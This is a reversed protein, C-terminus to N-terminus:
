HYIISWPLLCIFSSHSRNIRCMLRAPVAAPFGRTGAGFCLAGARRWGPWPPRASCLVARWLVACCAVGCWVVGCWVVACWLVGCCLM